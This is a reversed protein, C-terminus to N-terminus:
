EPYVRLVSCEWFEQRMSGNFDPDLEAAGIVMLELQLLHGNPFIIYTGDSVTEDQRTFCQQGVYDNLMECDSVHIGFLRVEVQNGNVDTLIVTNNDVNFASVTMMKDAAPIEQRGVAAWSIWPFLVTSMVITIIIAAFLKKM